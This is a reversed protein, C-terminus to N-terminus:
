GKEYLMTQNMDQWLEKKLSPVTMLEDVSHSVLVSQKNSRMHWGGKELSVESSLVYQAITKGFVLLAKKSSLYFQHELYASVAERAALKGQSMHALIGRENNPWGFPWIFQQGEMYNLEVESYGLMWLVDSLFHRHQVTVGEKLNMIPLEIMILVSDSVGLVVFSFPSVPVQDQPDESRVLKQQGTDESTLGFSKVMELAQLRGGKNGVQLNISLPTKYQVLNENSVFMNKQKQLENINKKQVRGIINRASKARLFVRNPFWVQIGMAELYCQRVEESYENILVM